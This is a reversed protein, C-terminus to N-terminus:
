RGWQEGGGASGDGADRGLGRRFGAKSTGLVARMYERLSRRNRRQYEGGGGAIWGSAIGHIAVTDVGGRTGACRTGSLVGSGCRRAMSESCRGNWSRAGVTWGRARITHLIAIFRARPLNKTQM